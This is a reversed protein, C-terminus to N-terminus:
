KRQFRVFDMAGTAVAARYIGIAFRPDQALAKGQLSRLAPARIFVEEMLELRTMLVPNIPVIVRATMAFRDPQVLRAAMERGPRANKAMAEDILWIEEERLLDHLILGTTEHYREVRWLSFRAHRMAELVIAKDSGPAFGAARAYRDLPHSRGPRVLYIALDEALAIEYESDSVVTKGQTLGIRRAWDLVVDPAIINLVAEHQEKSIQRLRRYRSLIESRTMLPPGPPSVPQCFATALASAFATPRALPL